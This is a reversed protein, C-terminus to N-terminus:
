DGEACGPKGESDIDNWNFAVRDSGPDNDIALNRQRDRGSGM